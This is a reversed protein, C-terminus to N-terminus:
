GSLFRVWESERFRRYKTGITNGRHVNGITQFFVSRQKGILVDVQQGSSSRRQQQVALRQPRQPSLAPDVGTPQDEQAPEWEVEEDIARQTHLGEDRNADGLSQLWQTYSHRQREKFTTSDRVPKRKPVPMIRPVPLVSAASLNAPSLQLNM